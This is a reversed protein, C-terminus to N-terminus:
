PSVMIRRERRPSRLWRGLRPRRAHQGATGATARAASRVPQPEPAGAGTQVPTVPGDDDTAGPPGAAGPDAWPPEAPGDPEAPADALPEGVGDTPAVLAVHFFYVSGALFTDKSRGAEHITCDM